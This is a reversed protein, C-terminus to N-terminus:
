TIKGTTIYTAVAKSVRAFTKAAPGTSMLAGQPTVPLLPRALQRRTWPTGAERLPKYSKRKLTGSMTSGGHFAAAYPRNTGFKIWDRGTSPRASMSERMAGSDVGIRAVKPGRGTRRREETADALPAWPTGDPSSESRFVGVMLRQVTESQVALVPQLNVARRAMAAFAEAVEKPSHGQEFTVAM